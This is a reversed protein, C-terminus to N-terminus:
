LQRGLDRQGGREWCAGRDQPSVGRTTLTPFSWSREKASSEDSEGSGEEWSPRFNPNGM